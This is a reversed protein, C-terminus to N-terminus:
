SVFRRAALGAWNKLSRMLMLSPTKLFDAPFREEAADLEEQLSRRRDPDIERELYVPQVANRSSLRHRDTADTVVPPSSTSRIASM